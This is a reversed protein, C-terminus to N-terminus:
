ITKVKKKRIIFVTSAITVAVTLVLWVVQGLNLDM